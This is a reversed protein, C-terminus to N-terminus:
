RFKKKSSNAPGQRSRSESRRSLYSILPTKLSMRLCMTVTTTSTWTPLTMRARTTTSRDDDILHRLRRLRSRLRTMVLIM